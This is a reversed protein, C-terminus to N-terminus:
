KLTVVAGYMNFLFVFFVTITSIIIKDMFHSKFLKIECYRKKKDDIVYRIFCCIFGIKYWVNQM